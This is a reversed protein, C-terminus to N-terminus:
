PIIIGVFNNNATEVISMDSGDVLGDGNVDTPLYGTAFNNNDTETDSMDSGDVLGDQNVDGAYVAYYGYAVEKLNDGYAKNINDSFNFYVDNNYFNITYASWTELHNRHKVVIYYNDSFEFPITVTCNGNISLYGTTQYEINYPYVFNYLEIQIDDVINGGYHDGMDDQVKNMDSGNFLGELFLTLTLNKNVRGIIYGNQIKPLPVGQDLTITNINVWAYEWDTLDSTTQFRIKFLTGKTNISNASAAAFYITNGIVNYTLNWGETLTSTTIIDTFDLEPQMFSISGEFSSVSQGTPLYDINVPVDCQSNLLTPTNIVRVYTDYIKFFDTQTTAGLADTVTVKIYGSKKAHLLGNADIEAITNNSSSWNYPPLGNSANIQLDEGAVLEGSNPYLNIMPLNIVSFFGNKCVAYLNQNFVVNGFQLECGWNANSLIKCKIFFLIGESTLTDTGAFSFNINGPTNLNFTNYYSELMTGTTIIDMPLLISTNFGISLNGSMIGLSTLSTTYVPINIISGQFASTDRIQVKMGRIEINGDTTDILGNESQVRVKTFGINMATLMGDSNITAAFNNTVSWQFPTTGGYATFQMNEGRYLLGNNQEITIVPPPTIDLYGSVTNITPYGENFFCQTSNGFSLQFCCGTQQTQFRIYFLKGSGSLSNIGAGAAIIQGPTNVNYTLSGFSSSITGTNFIAIPKFYTNYLNPNYNIQIQFSQVNYGTLSNDVYVPIDVINGKVVSTDPLRLQIQSKVGGLIILIFVSSLILIKTNMKEM